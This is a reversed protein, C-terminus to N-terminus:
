DFDKNVKRCYFIDIEENLSFSSYEYLRLEYETLKRSIIATKELVRKPEFSEQIKENVSLDVKEKSDKEVSKEPSEITKM